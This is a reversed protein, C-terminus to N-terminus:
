GLSAAQRNDGKPKGLNVLIALVASMPLAIDAKVDLILAASGGILSWAVPIVLLTLQVRTRSLILLAFTFIVLPCPTIGFSPAQPYEHGLWANIVPYVIAAYAIMTIAIIEPFSHDTMFELRSQLGYVLFLIAQIAFLAAFGYAM